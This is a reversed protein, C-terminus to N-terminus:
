VHTFTFLLSYVFCIALPSSIDLYGQANATDLVFWFFKFRFHPAIRVFDVVDWEFSTEFEPCLRTCM